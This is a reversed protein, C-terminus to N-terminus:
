NLNPQTCSDRRHSRGFRTNFAGDGNLDGVTTGQFLVDMSCSRDLVFLIDPEDGRVLNPTESGNRNLDDFKTGRITSNGVRATVTFQQSDEGGRGDQVRVTEIRRDSKGQCERASALSLEQSQM